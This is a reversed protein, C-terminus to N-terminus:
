EAKGGRAKRLLQEAEFIIPNRSDLEDIVGMQKRVMEYLETSAALLYATADREEDDTSGYNKGRRVTTEACEVLAIRRRGHLDPAMIVSQCEPETRAGVVAEYPGPFFNTKSM